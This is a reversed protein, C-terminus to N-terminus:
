DWEQYYFQKYHHHAPHITFHEAVWTSLELQEYVKDLLIDYKKYMMGHCNSCNKTFVQFGVHILISISYEGLLFYSLRVEESVAPITPELVESNLGPYDDTIHELKPSKNRM